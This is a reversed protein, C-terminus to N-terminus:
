CWSGTSWLCPAMVRPQSRQSGPAWTRDRARSKLVQQLTACVSRGTAGVRRLFHHTSGTMVRCSAYLVHFTVRSLFCCSQDMAPTSSVCSVTMGALRLISVMVPSISPPLASRALSGGVKDSSASQNHVGSVSKVLSWSDSKDVEDAACKWWGLKGEVLRSAAFLVERAQNHRVAIRVINLYDDDPSSDAKTGLSNAHHRGNSSSISRPRNSELMLNLKNLDKTKNDFLADFLSEGTGGIVGILRLHAHHESSARTFSFAEM